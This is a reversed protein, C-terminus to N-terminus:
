TSIHVALQRYMLTSRTIAAVAKKNTTPKM